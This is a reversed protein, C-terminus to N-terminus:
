LGLGGTQRKLHVKIHPRNSNKTVRELVIKNTPSGTPTQFTPLIVKKEKEKKNLTNTVRTKFAM